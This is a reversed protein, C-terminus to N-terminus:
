ATDQWASALRRRRLVDDRDRGNPGCMNFESMWNESRFRSSITHRAMATMTSPLTVLWDSGM